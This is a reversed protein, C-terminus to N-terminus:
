RRVNQTYWSSFSASALRAASSSRRMSSSTPTHGQTRTPPHKKLVHIGSLRLDPRTNTNRSHQATATSQHESHDIYAHLNTGTTELSSRNRGESVPPQSPEQGSGARSCRNQDVPLRTWDAVAGGHNWDNQRRQLQTAGGGRNKKRSGRPGQRTKKQNVGFLGFEITRAM